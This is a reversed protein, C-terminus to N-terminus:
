RIRQADKLDQIFVKLAVVNDKVSEYISDLDGSDDLLKASFILTKATQNLEELEIRGILEEDSKKSVEEDEMLHNIQESTLSKLTVNSQIGSLKDFATVVILGSADIDFKIVIKTQGKPRKEFGSLEFEGLCENDKALPREGQYIRINVLEQNDEATIFEQGATVPISTNRPIVKTMLGGKTEIGLSLPTVDILIAGDSTQHSISDALVAAGYSVAKDPDIDSFIRTNFEKKVFDKVFKSKTSGGVMIIKSLASIKKDADNLSTLVLSKTQLLLSGILERFREQTIEFQHHHIRGNITGTYKLTRNVRQKYNLQIKVEEAFKKLRVKFDRFPKFYSPLSKLFEDIIVENFDDGGLKTNGSTSLVQYVNDDSLQLLTFDATGGGLDYVLVLENVQSDEGYALAAATPENIIRLVRLGAEEAAQKTELRQNQNFYAPVTLVIGDITEGTQKETIQKIYSLIDRAVDIPTIKTFEFPLLNSVNQGISRKSSRITLDPFDEENDVAERGIFKEGSYCVVSPILIEGSEDRIYIIKGTKDRLSAVSYSTGLDIGIFIGM